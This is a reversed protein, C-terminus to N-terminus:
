LELHGRWGKPPEFSLSNNSGLSELSVKTGNLVMEQQRPNAISLPAVPNFAERLIPLKQPDFGILRAAAWDGLAVDESFILAGCKVAKPTLPGEGEGGTIGDILSVHRRQQLDKLNGKADGYIMIRSVDLAMRWATDNGHWSGSTTHAFQNTSSRTVRDVARLLNGGFSSPSTRQVFDHFGSVLQLFHLPDSPYEDGGVSPSGFRHHALSDKHAVAGVFGKLSCTLGVKQHTKLKPLSFVVDSELAERSIVYVHKGASHFGETRDPDYDSVRFRARQGNSLSALLSQAGLDVSVGETESREELKSIRGLPSREAILLRLDKAEVPVGLSQYFELVSQAGTDNLVADWNASQLPANGFVIRGDAGVALLLFDIVARLVSGHTCKAFFDDESENARRHQVFNCLVFVRSGPIVLERLPNWDPTGYRSRDLGAQAFCERVARYVDNRSNSITSHCYEPFREDPSFGDPTKPYQLNSDLIVSLM